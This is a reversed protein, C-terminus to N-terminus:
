AAAGAYMRDILDGYRAHIVRRKVKMTPTLEGGEVTFPEAVLDWARIQEHRSLIANAAALEAAFLERTRPDDLLEEGRAEIGQANAWGALAEMDPSLLASLFQRRDGIVVAQDVYRSGKLLNEIPAPAVNKGYANVIIEKKRDTIKLFGDEDIEGIDGTRFWGDGTLVEATEEPLKYYGQMINPGRALIEGDEDIELEVGPITLGVTGLKARGPRNVTLVPATETLGYGEYIEIGAGWFFEAVDQGLPAGGSVAKQFRGGLRAKLKGFVLKDALALKLGLLGGPRRRQLRWALADRAVGQAWAFIKQKVPSSAEVNDRVRALVKEYLRPVSVFVHPQVLQLDDAVTQVSEAYAITIGEHFYVYDVTREFSHCLPLFSLATWDKGLDLVGASSEVNSAVNRHSLMVGKPKGTTGSTYILTALDEPRVARARREFTEQDMPETTALIESFAYVGDRAAGDILVITEIRPWRERVTLLDDLRRDGQVLLIRAECDNIVYSADEANLTPYVPALAAGLCLTAFDTVPWDPGNEAMLAVKDGPEVGHAALFAALRRVRDVVEETSIAAFRGEVKHMLCAQRPDAAVDLFLKSLTSLAM